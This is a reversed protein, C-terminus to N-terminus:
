WLKIKLSLAFEHHYAITKVALFFILSLFTHQPGANSGLPLFSTFRTHSHTQTDSHESVAADGGGPM